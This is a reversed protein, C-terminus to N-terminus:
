EQSRGGLACQAQPVLQALHELYLALLANIVSLSTQGLCEGGIASAIYTLLILHNYTQLGVSRELASDEGLATDAHHLRSELSIAVFQIGLGLLNVGLVALCVVLTHERGIGLINTICAVAM